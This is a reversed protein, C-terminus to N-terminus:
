KFEPNASDLVSHPDHHSSNPPTLITRANLHPPPTYGSPHSKCSLSELSTYLDKIQATNVDSIDAM